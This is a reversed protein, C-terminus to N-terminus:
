FRWGLAIRTQDDASFNVKRDRAVRVFYDRIDWTLALGGGHVEPAGVSERGHKAFLDLTLRQRDALEVRGVAHTVHQGTHLRNDAVSYLSLNAGPQPRLGLGITWADNPDFNLNYYDRANTRGYGLLAYATHGIEGNVAGGAFGGSALQLSPILRGGAGDLTLEYGARTQAFDSGRRYEGLWLAHPGLNGRLNVDVADGAHSTRYLSPTLKFEWHEGDGPPAPDGPRSADALAGVAPLLAGALLVGSLRAARRREPRNPM